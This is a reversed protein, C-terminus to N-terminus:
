EKGMSFYGAWASPRARWTGSGLSAMRAAALADGAGAGGTLSEYFSEFFEGTDDAVPWLVAVVARAGAALWAQAFGQLGAGPLYGGAGSGCGSLVVVADGADMRAAVASATLMQPRGDEGLSMALFMEWPRSATRSRGPAQLLNLTEGSPRGELFHAAVHVVAPKRGLAEELGEIGAGPGEYGAATWGARSAAGSVKRIEAGSGVLRPMEWESEPSRRSRRTQRPDARNYISDGFVAMGGRGWGEPRPERFSLVPALQVPRAPDLAAWPFLFLADDASVIWGRAQALPNAWGLWEGYVAGAMERWGAEDRSLATRIGDVREALRERGPLPGWVFSERALVWGWSREDGVLFSLYAQGPALGARLAELSSTGGWGQRGKTGGPLGALTEAAAEPNQGQKVRRRWVAERLAMARTAEVTLFAERAAAPGGREMLLEVLLAAAEAGTVDAAVQMWQSSPLWRRWSLAGEVAMRAGSLAEADRGEARAILAREYHSWWNAVGAPSGRRTEDGAETLRVAEAVRGQALRLRALSRYSSELMPLGRLRRVRFAATLYEEAAELDGQGLAVSGHKDWVQALLGPEGLRDAAEAAKEAWDRAAAANGRRAAVYMRMALLRAWHRSDEALMEAATRLEAEGQDPDWLATYLSSLNLRAVAALESYGAAQARTLARRYAAEAQGYQHGAFYAGGASNLFAGEWREDGAKDAVGAGRLYVEAAGAYQRAGIFKAGEQVLRGFEVPAPTRKGSEGGGVTLLLLLCVGGFRGFSYM